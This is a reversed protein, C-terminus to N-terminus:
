HNIGITGYGIMEKLPMTTIGFDDTMATLVNCSEKLINPSKANSAYKIIQLAMFKPTVLEAYKLIM